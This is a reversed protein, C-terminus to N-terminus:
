AEFTAKGGAVTRVVRIDKITNPDVDAPSRELMVFDAYKGATISGKTKEEHSAYAGNITAVTLAENVTIKQNPGWERGRFDRRTVMSQIAMLPEFPGPGYDSAGPARIGADLFSRHAFFSRLKEDGYQSWKEGHYYVYTWFPTPITGTAKIRSILSPNVQTCHEIRYRRDAQPMTKHVREYALLVMDIAVDGNAHIGIQWNNRQADDVAAYIDDQSMTLLGYDNTGVYPTSMRMTRESASGDASYKVGGVRLWEDGFGTYVGADRLQAYAGGRIMMYARHRLDGARYVDEYARIKEQNTGADHVSTLGVKAFEQSIHRMGQRAREREEAPSFKARVGVPAFKGRALEAARGTLEGSEDRFFRGHEPDPTARTIGALELARSNYWSTHGGRHNVSVPNRPAIDDLHQRTLTVDLKTDDFMFADVWMDPPVQAIRKLLNARLEAVTRVNANVGFLENVGSPHCHCDIFGPAIFMGGADIVRTRATALNRIDSTRGVALFRGDKVAFAEATPTTADSTHVRGNVVVLDAEIGSGRAQQPPLPEAALSRGFPARVLTAAGALLASLTLFEKRTQRAM